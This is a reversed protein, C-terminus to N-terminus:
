LHKASGVNDAIEGYALKEKRHRTRTIRLIFSKKGNKGHPFIRTGGNIWVLGEDFLSLISFRITRTMELISTHESKREPERNLLYPPHFMKVTVAGSSFVVFFMMVRLIIM